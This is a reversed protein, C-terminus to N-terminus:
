LPKWIACIIFAAIACIMFICWGFVKEKMMEHAIAEKMATKVKEDHVTWEEKTLPPSTAGIEENSRCEKYTEGTMDAENEKLSNKQEGEKASKEAKRVIQIELERFSYNEHLVYNLSHRWYNDWNDRMKHREIFPVGILNAILRWEKRTFIGLKHILGSEHLSRLSKNHESDFHRYICSFMISLECFPREKAFDKILDVCRTCPSFSILMLIHSAKLNVSEELDSIYKLAIPEVHGEWENKKLIVNFKRGSVKDELVAWCLVVCNNRLNPRGNRYFTFWYTAGDAMGWTATQM